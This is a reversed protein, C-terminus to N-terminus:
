IEDLEREELEEETMECKPCFWTDCCPCKTFYEYCDPCQM